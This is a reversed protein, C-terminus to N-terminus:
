TAQSHNFGLRFPEILRSEKDTVKEEIKPWVFTNTKNQTRETIRNQSKTMKFDTVPRDVWERCKFEREGTAWACVQLIYDNTPTQAKAKPFIELGSEL